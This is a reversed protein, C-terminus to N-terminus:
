KQFFMVNDISLASPSTDASTIGARMELPADVFPVTLSYTVLDLGDVGIELRGYPAVSDGDNVEFGIVVDHWTGPAGLPIVDSRERCAPEICSTAHQELAIGNPRIVVGISAEEGNARKAVIMPGGLGTAPSADLRVAFAIAGFFSTGVTGGDLRLFSPEGSAAATVRLSRAGKTASPALFALSSGVSGSWRSAPDASEFDECFADSRCQFDLPQAPAPSPKAPAVVVPTGGGAGPPADIVQEEGTTPSGGDGGGCAALGAVLWGLALVVHPRM